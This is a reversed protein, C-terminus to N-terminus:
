PTPCQAGTAAWARLLAVFEAHTGSAPTRGLGPNWAWKVLSDTVVHKLIAVIKRGGNRRPDKLQRCIAGLTKGKWGTVAPALQWHPDGPVRAPDFNARGHCTTCALGPAGLNGKGRVVLPRHPRQNDGQLPRDGGPHCNTCRPHLLVKGAEKFLAVSRARANAIGAFSSVPRLTKALIRASPRESQGFVQMASGTGLVITIAVVAIPRHAITM